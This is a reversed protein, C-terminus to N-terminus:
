AMSTQPLLLDTIGKSTRPRVRAVNIFEVLKGGPSIPRPLRKFNMPDANHNVIHIYLLFSSDVSVRKRERMFSTSCRCKTLHVVNRMAIVLLRRMLLGWAKYSSFSCQRKPNDRTEHNKFHVKICYSLRWLNSPKKYHM